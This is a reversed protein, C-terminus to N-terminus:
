YISHDLNGDKYKDYYGILHGLYTEKSLGIKIGDVTVPTFGLIKSYISVIKYM